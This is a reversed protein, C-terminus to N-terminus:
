CQSSAGITQTRPWSFTGSSRAKGIPLPARLSARVRPGVDSRGKAWSVREVSCFCASPPRFVRHSVHLVRQARPFVLQLRQRVREDRSSVGDVREDVREGRPYVREGLPLRSRLSTPGGRRSRLRARLSRFRATLVLLRSRSTRFRVIRSTPASPIEQPRANM